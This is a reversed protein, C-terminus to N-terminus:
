GVEEVSLTDVYALYGRVERDPYLERLLSTYSKVQAKYEPAEEEGTKFDIVTVRDPDIVVRDMRLLAGERTSYEM